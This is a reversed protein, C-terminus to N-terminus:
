RSATPMPRAASGGRLTATRSRSLVQDHSCSISTRQFGFWPGGGNFDFAFCPSSTALVVAGLSWVATLVAITNSARDCVNRGQERSIGRSASSTRWHLPSARVGSQELFLHTTATVTLGSPACRQRALKGIARKAARGVLYVATAAGGDASLRANELTADADVTERNGYEVHYRYIQIPSRKACRLSGFASTELMQFRHLAARGLPSPYRKKSSKKGSHELESM